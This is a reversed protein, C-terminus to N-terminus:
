SRTLADATLRYFGTEGAFGKLRGMRRETRYGKLVEAVGPDRAFADSLMVDGGEGQGELRAAMNVTSGYYDLRDNITVAISHGLHLGVRVSMDEELTSERNLANVRAQIGLAARAADAPDAFAAHIGDGILKVVTGDHERVVETLLAFYERIVRYARADGVRAYLATSGKFDAFMFAIHEVSVDDGPRLVQDSFLDYFVQLTTARHATLADRVWEREEVIATRVSAGLNHVGPEGDGPDHTARLGGDDVKVVPFAGGDWDIELVEGAELTRLRYRGAPLVAALPKSEGPQLTIQAKIHPTNMPGLWCFEGREVSRVGPAPFFSLEVNRSYDRDYRINCSACHAEEALGALTAATSKGLRCRPCLLEWRSGLLGERVAALCLEIIPREAVAWDRALALPRITGLVAEQAGLVHDALRRALGHGYPSEELRRVMADVRQRTAKAVAPAHYSFPQQSQGDLYRAADAIIRAFKRHTDRIIFRCILPGLIGAPQLEVRYRCRSGKALPELDLAAAFRRFPGNRFERIHEHFQEHVWNVPFDEWELTFRGFRARGFFRVRGDPQLQENIRHKPVGLIENYRATDSLLPWLAEARHPIDWNWSACLRNM